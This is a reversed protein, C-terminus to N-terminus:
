YGTIILGSVLEKNLYDRELKARLLKRHYANLFLRDTTTIKDSTVFLETVMKDIAADCVILERHKRIEDLQQFLGKVHNIKLMKRFAVRDDIIEYLANSLNGPDYNIKTIVEVNQDIDDWITAIM